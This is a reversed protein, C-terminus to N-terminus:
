LYNALFDPIKQQNRQLLKVISPFLPRDYETVYSLARGKFGKRGTRGIRHIYDNINSPFDFNIVYDVNPIDLGRSAVDTAVLLPITGNSFLTMAEQRADQCKAGHIATALYENSIFYSCLNDATERKNVFVITKGKIIQLLQHIAQLKTKTKNDNLLYLRQEVNANIDEEKGLAEGITITVYDTVLSKVMNLVKNPFTASFMLTTRQSKNPMDYDNVICEVDKEFGMDFLRDAEDFIFYQISCLQIFGKDLFDILRGPTGILIDVGMRLRKIQTDYACGGYIVGSVIGTEHFVKLSEQYTQEALERTPLIILVVPYSTSTNIQIPQSSLLLNAIPLLYALTKGSGTQACGVINSKNLIHPITLKQIPTMQNYSLRKLTEKLKNNLQLESLMTPYSSTDVNSNNIILSLKKNKLELSTFDFLRRSNYKIHADIENKSEKNIIDLMMHRYPYRQNWSNNNSFKSHKDMNIYNLM